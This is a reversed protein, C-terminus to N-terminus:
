FSLFYAVPKKGKAHIMQARAAHFRLVEMVPNLNHIYQFTVTLRVFFTLKVPLLPSVHM